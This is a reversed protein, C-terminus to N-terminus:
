GGCEGVEVGIAIEIQDRALVRPRQKIEPIVAVDLASWPDAAHDARAHSGVVAIARLDDRGAAWAVLKSLIREAGDSQSM